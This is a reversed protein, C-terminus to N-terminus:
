RRSAVSPNLCALITGGLIAVLLAYELSTRVTLERNSFFDPALHTCMYIGAMTALAYLIVVVWRLPSRSRDPLRNMVKRTFTPDDIGRPLERAMAERIAGDIARSDIDCKAVNGAGISRANIDHTERTTSNSQKM